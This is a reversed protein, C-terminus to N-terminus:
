AAVNRMRWLSPLQRTNSFTPRVSEGSEARRPADDGVAAVDRLAFRASSASARAFSSASRAFRAFLSNRDRMLWSSRVGIFLM